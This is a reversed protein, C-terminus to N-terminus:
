AAGSLVTLLPVGSVRNLVFPGSGRNVDEEASCRRRGLWRGCDSPSYSRTGERLATFRRFPSSGAAQEGKASGWRSRVFQSGVGLVSTLWTPLVGNLLASHLVAHPRGLCRLQAFTRLLRLLCSAIFLTETSGIPAHRDHRLKPEEFLTVVPQDARPQPQAEGDKCDERDVREYGASDSAPVGASVPKAPRPAVM